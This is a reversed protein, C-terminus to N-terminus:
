CRNSNQSVKHNSRGYTCFNSCPLTEFLSFQAASAIYVTIQDGYFLLHSVPPLIMDILFFSDTSTASFVHSLRSPHGATADRLNTLFLSKNPLTLQCFATTSPQRLPLILLSSSLLSSYQSLARPLHPTQFPEQQQVSQRCVFVQIQWCLRHKASALCSRKRARSHEWRLWQWKRGQPLLSSRAVDQKERFIVHLSLLLPGQFLASSPLYAAKLHTQDTIQREADTLLYFFGCDPGLARGARGESSSSLTEFLAIFPHGKAPQVNMCSDRCFSPTLNSEPHLKFFELSWQM